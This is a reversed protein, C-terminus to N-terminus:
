QKVRALYRHDLAAMAILIRVILDITLIMSAEEVMM